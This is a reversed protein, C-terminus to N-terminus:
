PPHFSSRLPLGFVSSMLDAASHASFIDVWNSFYTLCDFQIVRVDNLAKLFSLM